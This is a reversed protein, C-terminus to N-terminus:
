RDSDCHLGGRYRFVGLWVGDLDMALRKLETAGLPLAILVSRPCANARKQDPCVRQLVYGQM